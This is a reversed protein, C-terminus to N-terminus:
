PVRAPMASRRPTSTSCVTDSRMPGSLTRLTAVSEADGPVVCRVDGRSTSILTRDPASM